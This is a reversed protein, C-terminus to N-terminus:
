PDTQKGILFHVYSNQLFIDELTNDM